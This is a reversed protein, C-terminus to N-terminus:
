EEWPIQNADTHPMPTIKRTQYASVPERLQYGDGPSSSVQRYRDRSLKLLFEGKHCRHTLHWIYGPIFHRNARPM